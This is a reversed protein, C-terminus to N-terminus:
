QGPPRTVYPSGMGGASRHQQHQRQLHAQRHEHVRCIQYMLLDNFEQYMFPLFHYGDIYVKLEQKRAAATISRVDLVEWGWKKAIPIMADQAVDWNAENLSSSSTTTKWVLVTELGLEGKISAGLQLLGEHVKLFMDLPRPEGELTFLPYYDYWIGGNVVLVTPRHQRLMSEISQKLNDEYNPNKMAMYSILRLPVEGFGEPTQIQYRLHFDHHEVIETFSMTKNRRCSCTEMAVGGVPCSLVRGLEQWYDGWEAWQHEHVLSPYQRNDAYPDLPSKKSLWYALSVYQYRTLSDGILGVVKHGLCTRAEDATIRPINCTDPEYLFDGGDTKYFRGNAKPTLTNIAPNCLPMTRRLEWPPLPQSLNFQIVSYYGGKTISARQQNSCSEGSAQYLNVSEGRHAAFALLSLLVAVTTGTILKM